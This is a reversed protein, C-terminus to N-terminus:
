NIKLTSPLLNIFYDIREQLRVLEKPDAEHQHCCAGYLQIKQSELQGIIAKLDSEKLDKDM